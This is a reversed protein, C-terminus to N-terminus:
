RPETARAAGIAVLHRRTRWHIVGKAIAPSAMSEEGLSHVGLEEFLTGARVVHVEGGEGTLYLKGDGAVASATFGFGGGDLRERYREEGTRADYCALIGSDSCLYLQEGYVLPTQMYNGRRLRSWIMHESEEAKMALEGEASPSIAFIPATRGHASTIYILEHAFIPTPTPIDGGGVLTWLEAGTQLDYGGIHKFGNVVVQARSPTVVVTPSGWGPVEDRPTRWVDAGTELDLAALFSDGQIDVQVLVREGHIVPSSAFGWEAGPLLYFGANLTGLDRTWLLEGEASYCFLGESGFLAVVREGDATPTSAAHSGKPHRRDTPVGEWAAREWLIEGSARDLCLVSFVHPSDDDVPIIDGFLGVKLRADGAERVATTVYIREGWIVPSSHALGPIPTRWLVGEGSELDWREVLEDGDAVGSAGPGRFSPWYAEGDGAPAARELVGFLQGSHGAGKWTGAYQEDHIVVRASFTGLLPIAMDTVTIVPTDGAWLVDVVLPLSFHGGGYAIRAEFRWQSLTGEVKSVQVLDYGDAQPPSGPAADSATFSGVMRAGSMLRAFAAERSAQEAENQAQQGHAVGSALVLAIAAIRASANEHSM